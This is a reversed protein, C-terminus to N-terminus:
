CPGRWGGADRRAPERQAWGSAVHVVTARFGFGPPAVFGNQGKRWHWVGSGWSQPTVASGGRQGLQVAWRRGLESPAVVFVAGEALLGLGLWVMGFRGTAGVTAARRRLAGVMVVLRDPVADAAAAAVTAM